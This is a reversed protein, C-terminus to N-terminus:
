ERFVLKLFHSFNSLTIGIPYQMLLSCYALTSCRYTKCKTLSSLSHHSSVVAGSHPAFFACLKDLVTWLQPTLAVGKATSVVM